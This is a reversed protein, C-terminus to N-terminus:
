TTSTSGVLIRTTSMMLWYAAREAAAVKATRDSGKILKSESAGQPEFTVCM